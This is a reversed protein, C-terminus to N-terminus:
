RGADDPEAAADFEFGIQKIQEDVQPLSADAAPLGAPIARVVASPEPSRGAFAERLVSRRLNRLARRRNEPAVSLLRRALPIAYFLAAYAAPIATLGLWALPQSLDIHLRPAIAEPMLVTSSLLVFGNMLGIGVNSATTNGTVPEEVEW